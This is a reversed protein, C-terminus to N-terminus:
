QYNKRSVLLWNIVVISTSLSLRWIKWKPDFGTILFELIKTQPTLQPVCDFKLCAMNDEFVTSHPIAQKPVIESKLPIEEFTKGHKWYPITPVMQTDNSNPISAVSSPFSFANIM